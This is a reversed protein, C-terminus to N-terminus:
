LGRREKFSQLDLVNGQWAPADETLDDILTITREVINRLQRSQNDGGQLMAAARRLHERALDYTPKM